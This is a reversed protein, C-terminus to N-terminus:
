ADGNFPQPLLHSASFSSINNYNTCEMILGNEALNVKTPPTALPKIM